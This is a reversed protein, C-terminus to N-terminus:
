RWCRRGTSACCRCCSTPTPAAPSSSRAASRSRRQAGVPLLRHPVDLLWAPVRRRRRARLRRRRQRDDLAPDGAHPHRGQGARHQRLHLLDGGARRTPHRGPPSHSPRSCGTSAPSWPSGRPSADVGAASRGRLRDHRARAGRRARERRRGRGARRSRTAGAGRQRRPRPRDRSAHLPLQAADRGPGGQLLGPLPGRPRRPQADALRHRDGPELGIGRYGAALRASEEELERWTLSAIRRSSRWRRPDSSAPGCCSAWRHPPSRWRTATSRCRRSRLGLPRLPYPAPTSIPKAAASSTKPARSQTAAESEPTIRPM